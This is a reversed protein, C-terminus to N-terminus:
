RVHGVTAPLTAELFATAVKPLDFERARRIGAAGMRERAAGDRLLFILAEALPGPEGEPVLLGAGGDPVVEPVAGARAAVIPLGAAMAELFAIGFGEQRSPLCFVHAEFYSRHVAEDEPIAGHFTVADEIRLERAVTRLRPLEPGGGIVRLHVAPVARRVVPFARLLTATDKRPYQRAVSLITPRRPPLPASGRLEDWASMEIPEPVISIRERPIGYRAEIFRASYESPVLVRDASEANRREFAALTSLLLREAGSRSFRAEDAAVGKLSVLYRSAAPRSASWRWGDLDFGVV